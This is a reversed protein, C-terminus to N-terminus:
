RWLASDDPTRFEREAPWERYAFVLFVIINVLPIFMLLGMGPSYGARRFIRIWPISLCVTLVTCIASVEAFGLGWSVLMKELPDFISHLSDFM